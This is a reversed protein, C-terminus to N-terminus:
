ADTKNGRRLGIEPVQVSWKGTAAASKASSSTTKLTGREATRLTLLARASILSLAEFSARDSIGFQSTPEENGLLPFNSVLM